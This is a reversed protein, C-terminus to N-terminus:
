TQQSRLGNQSQLIRQKKKQLKANEWQTRTFSINRGKAATWVLCLCVSTFLSPKSNEECWRAALNGTRSQIKSVSRNGALPWNLQERFPLITPLAQQYTQLHQSNISTYYYM